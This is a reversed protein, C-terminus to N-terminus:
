NVYISINGSLKNRNDKVEKEDKKGLIDLM